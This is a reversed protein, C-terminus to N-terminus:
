DLQDVYNLNHNLLQGGDAREFHFHGIFKQGQFILPLWHIDDPWMRDYPINELAFWEPRMEATERIEGRYTFIKYVHVEAISLDNQNTFELRGVLELPGAEVGAEEQFERRAATEISEGPEVKGGFGNYLEKGFGRKKWGLLIRDPEVVFLLTLVERM